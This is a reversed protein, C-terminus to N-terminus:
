SVGERRGRNWRIPLAPENEWGPLLEAIRRFITHVHGGDFFGVHVPLQIMQVGVQELARVLESCVGTSLGGIQPSENTTGGERLAEISGTVFRENNSSPIVCSGLRM